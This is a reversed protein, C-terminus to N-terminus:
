PSQAADRALVKATHRHNLFKRLYHICMPQKVSVLNVLRTPLGRPNVQAIYTVLTSTGAPGHPELMWGSNFVRGRIVDSAPPAVLDSRVSTSAIISKYTGKDLVRSAILLCFDRSHKLMCQTTEHEMHVLRTLESWEKVVRIDKLM